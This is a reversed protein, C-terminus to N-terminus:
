MFESTAHQRLWTKLNANQADIGAIIEFTYDIDVDDIIYSDNVTAGICVKNAQAIATSPTQGDSSYGIYLDFVVNELEHEGLKVNGQLSYSGYGASCSTSNLVWKTGALSDSIGDETTVYGIIKGLQIDYYLDNVTVHHLTTYQTTFYVGQFTAKLDNFQVYLIADEATVEYGMPSLFDRISNLNLYFMTNFRTAYWSRDLPIRTASPVGHNRLYMLSKVIKNMTDAVFPDSKTFENGSNITKIDVDRPDLPWAGM